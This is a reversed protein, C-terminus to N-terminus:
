LLGVDLGLSEAYHKKLMNIVKTDTRNNRGVFTRAPIDGFPIPRGMSNTGFAGKKVSYHFTKAYVQDSGIFVSDGEFRMKISSALKGSFVGIHNPAYISGKRKKRAITRQTLPKWRKRNVDHQNEFRDETEKLYIAGVKRLITLRDTGNLSESVGHLIDRVKDANTYNAQFRIM